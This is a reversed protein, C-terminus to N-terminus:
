SYSSTIVCFTCKAGIVLSLLIHHFFDLLMCLCSVLKHLGCVSLGFGFDGLVVVFSGIKFNAYEFKNMLM